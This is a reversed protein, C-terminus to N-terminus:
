FAGSIQDELRELKRGDQQNTRSSVINVIFCFKAQTEGDLLLCYPHCSKENGDQNGREPHQSLHFVVFLVFLIVPLHLLISSWDIKKWCRIFGSSPRRQVLELMQTTIVNVLAGVLFCVCKIVLM